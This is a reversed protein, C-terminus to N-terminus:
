AGRDINLALREKLKMWVIDAEDAEDVDKLNKSNEDPRKDSFILGLLETKSKLKERVGEEGATFRYCVFWTKRGDEEKGADLVGYNGEQLNELVNKGEIIKISGNEFSGGSSEYRELVAKKLATLDSLIKAAKSSAFVETSYFMMLGATAVIVALIGLFEIFTFGKCKVNLGCKM